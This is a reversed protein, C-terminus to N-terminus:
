RRMSARAHKVINSSGQTSRGGAASANSKAQDGGRIESSAVVGRQLVACYLMAMLGAVPMPVTYCLMDLGM